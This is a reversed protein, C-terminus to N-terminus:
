SLQEKRDGAAKNRNLNVEEAALYGSNWAEPDVYRQKKLIAKERKEREKKEEETEERPEVYPFKEHYKQKVLDQDRILAPLNDKNEYKERGARLAAVRQSIRTSFSHAFSLRWWHPDQPQRGEVVEGISNAHRRYATRLKSGANKATLPGNRDKAEYAIGMERVQSWSYGAKKILYVNEDFGIDTNWRPYMLRLAESFVAMWLIEAYAIDEEYGFVVRGNVMCGAHTYIITRIGQVIGSTQFEKVDRRSGTTCANVDILNLPQLEVEIVEALVEKETKGFNATARDIKHKTMLAEAKEQASQAEGPPTGPHSALSLLSEITGMIGENRM